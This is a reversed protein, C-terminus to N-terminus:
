KWAVKEKKVKAPVGAVLAGAPVDRNVLAGAAIIAGDGITVGKLITVGMGIWVHNGITVPQTVPSQAGVIEHDDSDRITVNESIYVQEGITISQFCSLSLNHNCYGSGLRLTAGKNVYVRSGSYLDFSGDVVLTANEHLVLLSTFPDHADWKNNLTLRGEGMIRASAAVSARAGRYLYGGGKLASGATLRLSKLVSLSKWHTLLYKSLGLKRMKNKTSLRLWDAFSIDPQKLLQAEYYNMLRKKLRKGEFFADKQNAKLLAQVTSKLSPLDLEEKLLYNEVEVVALSPLVSSLFRRQVEKDKRFLRQANNTAQTPHIRYLYLVEPLNVLKLGAALARTWMDYDEAPVASQAFRLAAENFRERRWLSSAHLIPALFLSTSKVDEANQERVWVEEKSGFLRMGCSCLDIDPHADLYDVQLQLRNLASIDDGDMRAIYEGRAMEMGVNLVNALGVNTEGRYRVIRPDSYGDLVEAVNDPSCDDLVILEFDAFSQGLMSDMAEKVFSACGYVPMLISVRPTM